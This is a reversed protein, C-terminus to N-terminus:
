AVGNKKFILLCGDESNCDTAWIQLQWLLTKVNCIEYIEPFEDKLSSHGCWADRWFSTIRGNGVTMRRGCLYIDRIHLLDSWLPSDGSRHKAFYIGFDRLYKKRVM